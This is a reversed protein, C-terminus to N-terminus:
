RIEVPVSIKRGRKERVKPLLLTLVGKEYTGRAEGGHVAEPLQVQRCMPEVCREMCLFRRAATEKDGYRDGSEITLVRGQLSVEIDGDEAGPLDCEVVVHDETEYVDVPIGGDHGETRAPVTGIIELDGRAQTM